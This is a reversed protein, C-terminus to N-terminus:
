SCIYHKPSSRPKRINGILEAAKLQMFRSGPNQKDLDEISLNVGDILPLEGIPNWKKDTFIRLTQDNECALVNVYEGVYRYNM